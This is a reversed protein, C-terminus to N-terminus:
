LNSIINFTYLNEKVLFQLTFRFLSFTFKKFPTPFNFFVPLPNIRIISTYFVKKFFIFLFFGVIILNLFSLFILVQFLLIIYNVFDLIKNVAFLRYVLSKMVEPGKLIFPM